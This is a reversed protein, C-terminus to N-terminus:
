KSNSLMVLVLEAFNGYAHRGDPAKTGDQSDCHTAAGILSDM